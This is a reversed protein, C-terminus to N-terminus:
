RARPDPFATPHLLQALRRATEAVRPGPRNFLNADVPVVKGDRVARLERWGVASSLLEIDIPNEETQSLLVVDPQRRVVEELSVRPWLGPADEFVNRGGAIEILEHIYTGSGTTTPPDYWVVYFVTPRERAAVATRLADLEAEISTVLSKAAPETGLIRGLEGVTREIDALTQVQPTYIEVGLESLRRIVSRSPNDPWAVVLDPQLVTLQELSPTLGPGVSPLHALAPDVDYDSRAVLREAAGLAVIIETASPILSVIRQPVREVAAAKDASRRIGPEGSCSVTVLLLGLAIVRATNM